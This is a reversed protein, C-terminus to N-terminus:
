VWDSTTAYGGPGHCHLDLRHAAPQSPVPEDIKGEPEELVIGRPHRRKAYRHEVPDRRFVRGVIVLLRRQPHRIPVALGDTADPRADVVLEVLELVLRPRPDPEELGEVVGLRGPDQEVGGPPPGVGHADLLAHARRREGGVVLASEQDVAELM